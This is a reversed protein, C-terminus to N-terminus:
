LAFLNSNKHTSSHLICCFTKILTDNVIQYGSPLLMEQPKTATQGSYITASRGNSFNQRSGKVLAQQGSRVTRILVEKWLKSFLVENVPCLLPSPPHKINISHHHSPFPQDKTHRM